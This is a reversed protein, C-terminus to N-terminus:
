FAKTNAIDTSNVVLAERSFRHIPGCNFRAALLPEKRIPGRGPVNPFTDNIEVVADAALHHAHWLFLLCEKRQSMLIDKRQSM